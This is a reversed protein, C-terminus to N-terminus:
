TSSESLVRTSPVLEPVTHIAKEGAVVSSLSGTGPPRPGASFSSAEEELEPSWTM